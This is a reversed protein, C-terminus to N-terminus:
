NARKQIEMLKAEVVKFIEEKTGSADISILKNQKKYYDLVPKTSENFTHFRKKITEVNDDVRGSTEGRKLLRKEMIEQSVEFAIVCLCPCVEKEFRIGQELERPYGDILFYCNKDVCKVMAEKILTLVVDLSVLEGRQMIAALEKGRASGSACEDRLLDGSSLHNYGFKEVIMECQTGKGSGPGGAYCM